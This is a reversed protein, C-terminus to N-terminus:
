GKSRLLKLAALNQMPTGHSRYITYRMGSPMKAQGSFLDKLRIIQGANVRGQTLATALEPAEELTQDWDVIITAHAADFFEDALEQHDESAFSAIVAGPKIRDVMDATLIPQKASSHCIIYDYQGVSALDGRAIM